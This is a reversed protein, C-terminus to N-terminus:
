SEEKSPAPRLAQGDAVLAQEVLALDDALAGIDEDEFNSTRM